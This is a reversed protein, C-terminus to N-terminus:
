DQWLYREQIDFYETGEGFSMSRAMQVLWRLNPITDQRDSLSAVEVWDVKEDTVSTLPTFGTTWYCYVEGLSGPRGLDGIGLICFLKWHPNVAPDTYVDVGTEERFERYMADYPNEGEEVKGGIGNLKGAQWEPREKRILAVFDLSSNMMFGVVYRKVGVM